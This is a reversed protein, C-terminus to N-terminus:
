LINFHFLFLVPYLYTLQSHVNYSMKSADCNVGSWGPKCTFCSGSQIHCTSDECNTPCPTVTVATSVRMKVDQIFHLYVVCYLSIILVLNKDPIQMVLQDLYEYM